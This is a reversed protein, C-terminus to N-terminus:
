RNSKDEFDVCQHRPTLVLEHRSCIGADAWVSGYASSLANLGPFTKEIEAPSNNFHRCQSCPHM